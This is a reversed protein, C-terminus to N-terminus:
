VVGHYSRTGLYHLPLPLSLPSPVPLPWTYPYPKSTYYRVKTIVHNSIAVRWTSSMMVGRISVTLLGWCLRSHSTVSSPQCLSSWTQQKWVLNWIRIDGEWGCWHNTWNAFKTPSLWRSNCSFPRILHLCALPYYDRTAPHLPFPPCHRDHTVSRCKLQCELRASRM